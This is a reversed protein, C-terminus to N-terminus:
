MQYEMGLFSSLKGLDSMEFGKKMLKKFKSYSKMNNGTVLLGDVYLWIITIDQVMVQVYIGYQYICKIFGSEVLYSDIKKNWARPTQKLGYLAKHLKYVKKAEEQIVFGLPQTAYVVEDLPGNLFTLKVDLHFTSWCQKCALAVVLRVTELRTVQAYVKSYDLGSRQLFGRAVLRSKHRSISGDPNHKMKFVWKVKIAKTHTPLEVLEWTNNRKVAQLEEVMSAKWKKDKLAKNYNIPEVGALLAFHVLDGDLMVEDDDVVEYDQLRSPLVINRQPRQRTIAM